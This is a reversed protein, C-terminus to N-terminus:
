GQSVFYEYVARARAESLRQNYARSGKNDTHGSIEVKLEPNEQLWKVVKNLPEKAAEKIVSKDFDFMTNSLEMMTKQIEVPVEKIITVTDRIIVTNTKEVTVTDKKVVTRNVTDRIHVTRVVTDTRYEIVPAPAKKVRGFAFRVKVGFGMNNAASTLRHQSHTIVYDNANQDLEKKVSSVYSSNLVSQSANDFDFGRLGKYADGPNFDVEANSTSKSYLPNHNGEQNLPLFGYDFYLGTYLGAADSLKWRFGIEAAALVQVLNMKINGEGSYSASDSLGADILNNIYYENGEPGGNFRIEYEGNTHGMIYDNSVMPQDPLDRGGPNVSKSWDAAHGAFQNYRGLINFGVKAGAALYFFNNRAKSLPATFMFMVPVQLQLLKQTEEFNLMREFTYWDTKGHNMEIVQEGDKKYFDTSVDAYRDGLFLMEAKYKGTYYSALVGIHLGVWDNFHATYGIGGGGGVPFISSNKGFGTFQPNISHNYIIADNKVVGYYIGQYGGFGEINFEHKPLNQAVAALGITLAAFILSLKRM